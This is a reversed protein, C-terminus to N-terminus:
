FYVCDGAVDREHWRGFKLGFYAFRAHQVAHAHGAIFDYEMREFVSDDM